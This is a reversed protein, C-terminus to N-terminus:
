SAKRKSPFRDKRLHVWVLDGPQFVKKKQHDNAQGSYTANIKEIRDKVREHLKKIEEV